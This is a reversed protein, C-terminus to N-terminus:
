AVSSASQSRAAIRIINIYTVRATHQVRGRRSPINSVVISLAAM